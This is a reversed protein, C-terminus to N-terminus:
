CDDCYKRPMCKVFIAMSFSVNKIWHTQRLQFLEYFIVLFEPQDPLIYGRFTPEDENGLLTNGGEECSESLLDIFM